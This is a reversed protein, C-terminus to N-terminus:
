EDEDDTRSPTRLPRLRQDLQSAAIAYRGLVNLHKAPKVCNTMTM